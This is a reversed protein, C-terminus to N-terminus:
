QLPHSGSIFFGEEYISDGDLKVDSSIYIMWNSLDYKTGNQNQDNKIICTCAMDSYNNDSKFDRLFSALHYIIKYLGLKPNCEQALGHILIFEM